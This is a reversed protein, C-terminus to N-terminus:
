TSMFHIASITSSHETAAYLVLVLNSAPSPRLPDGRTGRDVFFAGSVEHVLDLLQDLPIWGDQYPLQGFLVIHDKM